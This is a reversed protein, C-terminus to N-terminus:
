VKRLAMTIPIMANSLHQLVRLTCCDNKCKGKPVAVAGECNFIGRPCLMLILIFHTTTFPDVQELSHLLGDVPIKCGGKKAHYDDRSTFSLKLLEFAMATEEKTPRRGNLIMLMEDMAKHYLLAKEHSKSEARILPLYHCMVGHIPVAEEQTTPLDPFKKKKKPNSCKKAIVDRHEETM